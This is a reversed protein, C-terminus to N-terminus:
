HLCGTQLDPLRDSLLLQSLTHSYSCYITSVTADFPLGNAATDSIISLLLYEVFKYAYHM